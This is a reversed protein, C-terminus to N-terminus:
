KRIKLITRGNDRRDGWRAKVGKITAKPESGWVTQPIVDQCVAEQPLLM